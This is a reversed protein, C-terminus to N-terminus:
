DGHGIRGQLEALGAQIVKATEPNIYGGTGIISGDIDVGLLDRLAIMSKRKHMHKAAIEPSGYAATMQSCVALYAESREADTKFDGRQVQMGVSYALMDAGLKLQKLLTGQTLSGTLGAKFMLAQAAIQDTVSGLNLDAISIKGDIVKLGPLTTSTRRHSHASVTTM